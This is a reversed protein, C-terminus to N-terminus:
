RHHDNIRRRRCHVSPRGNRQDFSGPSSRRRASETPPPRRIPALTHVRALEVDAAAGDVVQLRDKTVSDRRLLTEVTLDSPHLGALDVEMDLAARDQVDNGKVMAITRGWRALDSRRAKDSNGSASRAGVMKAQCWDAGLQDLGPEAM